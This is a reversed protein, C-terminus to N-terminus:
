GRRKKVVGVNRTNFRNSKVRAKQSIKAINQAVLRLLDVMGVTETSTRATWSMLELLNAASLQITKITLTNAVLTKVTDPLAKVLDLNGLSKRAM